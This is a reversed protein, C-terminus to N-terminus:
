IPVAIEGCGADDCSSPRQFCMRSGTFIVAHQFRARRAMCRILLAGYFEFYRAAVAVADARAVSMPKGTDRAEIAAIENVRDSITGSLKLLLRGREVATTGV